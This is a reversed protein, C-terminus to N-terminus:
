EHRRAAMCTSSWRSISYAGSPTANMQQSILRYIAAYQGKAPLQIVGKTLIALVVGCVVMESSFQSIIFLFLLRMLFLKLTVHVVVGIREAYVRM